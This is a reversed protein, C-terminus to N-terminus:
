KYNKIFNTVELQPCYFGVLCYIQAVRYHYIDTFLVPFKENLLEDRIAKKNHSCQRMCYLEAEQERGPIIWEKPYVTCNSDCIKTGMDLIVKLEKKAQEARNSNQWSIPIAILFGSLLIVTLVLKTLRM